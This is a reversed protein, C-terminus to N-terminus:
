EWAGLVRGVVFGRATNWALRRTTRWTFCQSEGFPRERHSVPVEVIKAGRRRARYLAEVLIFAETYHTSPVFGEFVDRRMLKFACDVDRLGLGFCARIALNYARSTAERRFGEARKEKYGVVVDAGQSRATEVLRPLEEVDYQMDGDTFAVWEHRAAQIGSWVAQGYGRNQPHHVVRFRPSESALRDAIEGSRDPSADDVVIVEHEDCIKSLVRDALRALPEVTPEDRYAPFFFSIRM